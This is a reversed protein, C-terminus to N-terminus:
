RFGQWLCCHLGHLRWVMVFRLGARKGSYVNTSKRFSRRINGLQEWNAANEVEKNLMENYFSGLSSNLEPEEASAGLAIEVIM